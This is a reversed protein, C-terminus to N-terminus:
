CGTIAYEIVRRINKNTKIVKFAFCKNIKFRKVLGYDKLLNLYKMSTHHEFGLEREIYYSTEGDEKKKITNYVLILRDIKDLMWWKGSNYKRKLKKPM